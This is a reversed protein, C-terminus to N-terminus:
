LRFKKPANADSDASLEDLQKKIFEQTTSLKVSAGMNGGSKAIEAVKAAFSTTVADLSKDSPQTWTVLLLGSTDNIWQINVAANPVMGKLEEFSSLVDRTTCATPLESLVRVIRTKGVGFDLLLRDSDLTDGSLVWLCRSICMYQSWQSVDTLKSRLALFVKGTLLADYGAEHFKVDDGEMSDTDYKGSNVVKVMRFAEEEKLMEALTELAASGAMSLGSEIAILRTDFYGGKFVQQLSEKFELLTPPLDAEFAQYCFVLDLFGNHFVVPREAATIINWIRRFGIYENLLERSSLKTLVRSSGGGSVEEILRLHPHKEHVTALMSKLWRQGGHVFPVKFHTRADDLLFSEIDSLMRTEQTVYEDQQTIAADISFGNFFKEWAKAASDDTENGVLIAALKSETDANVYTIGKDVWRGFDMGHSRNFNTSASCLTVLPISNVEGETVPRPFVYFNFVTCEKSDASFVSVGVQIIGFTAAVPRLKQYRLAVSDSGNETTKNPFSIGTMELDIAVFSSESLACQFKGVLEDTM